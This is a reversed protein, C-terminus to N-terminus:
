QAKLILHRPTKKIEEILSPIDNKQTLWKEKSEPHILLPMRNHIAAMQNDAPTTLIVFQTTWQNQSLRVRHYLGGLYFFPTDKLTILYKTSKGDEKQWEFFGTCPVACKLGALSGAFMPKQSITETRANIIRRSANKMAYGWEMPYPRFGSESQALVAATESPFVEGQKVREATKADFVDAIEELIMRIEFIEKPDYFAYRGCM